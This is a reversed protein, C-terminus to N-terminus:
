TLTSIPFNITTLLRLHSFNRRVVRLVALLSGVEKGARTTGAGVKHFSIWEAAYNAVTRSTTVVRDVM